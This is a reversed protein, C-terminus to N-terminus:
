VKEAVLGTGAAVDLIYAEKKDTLYKAVGDAVSSHGVTYVEIIDQLCVPYNVWNNVLCIFRNRFDLCVFYPEM